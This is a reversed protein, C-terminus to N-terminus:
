RSHLATIRTVWTEKVNSQADFMPLQDYYSMSSLVTILSSMARALSGSSELASEFIESIVSDTAVIPEQSAQKFMTM